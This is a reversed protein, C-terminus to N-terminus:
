PQGNLSKLYAELADIEEDNLRISSMQPRTELARLVDSITKGRINPAAFAAKGRGDPGHCYACGIGGASREFVIKGKAVLDPKADDNAAGPGVLGPSVLIFAAIWVLLSLRKSKM